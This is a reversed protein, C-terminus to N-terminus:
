LAEEKMNFSARQWDLTTGASISAREGIAGAAVSTIKSAVSSSLATEIDKLLEVLEKQNIGNLAINKITM